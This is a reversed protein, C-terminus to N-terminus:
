IARQVCGDDDWAGRGDDHKETPVGFILVGPVDRATVGEILEPLRDVSWRYVGPMSGIERRGSSEDDVFLPLVFDAPSLTTERVLRRLTPTGRLRPPRHTLDLRRVGIELTM